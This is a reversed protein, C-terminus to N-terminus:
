HEKESSSAELARQKNDRQWFTKLKRYFAKCSFGDQVGNKIHNQLSHLTPFMRCCAMCKHGNQQSPLWRAAMIIDQSTITDKPSLTSTSKRKSGLLCTSCPSSPASCNSNAGCHRPVDGATERAEDVPTEILCCSELMSDTELCVFYSYPSFWPRYVTCNARALDLFKSDSSEEHCIRSGSLSSDSCLSCRRHKNREDGRSESVM